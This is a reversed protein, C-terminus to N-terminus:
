RNFLMSYILLLKDKFENYIKSLVFSVQFVFFICTYLLSQNNKIVIMVMLPQEYIVYAFFPYPPIGPREAVLLEAVLREAVM